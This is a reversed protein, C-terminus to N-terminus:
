QRGTRSARTPRKRGWLGVLGGTLSGGNPDAWAQAILPQGPRPLRRTQNQDELAMVAQTRAVADRLANAEQMAAPSRPADAPELGRMPAAEGVALPRYLPTEAVQRSQRWPEQDFQDPAMAEPPLALMQLPSGSPPPNHAPPQLGAQMADAAGRERLLGEWGPVGSNSLGRLVGRPLSQRVNAAANNFGTRFDRGMQGFADGGFDRGIQATVNPDITPRGFLNRRQQPQGEEQGMMRAIITQLDAM